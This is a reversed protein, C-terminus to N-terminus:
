AMREGYRPSALLREVAKEYWLPSADNLAAEIERPTPPLGTLDLTVRRLLTTRDAESSLTMGEKELRALIFADIPNRVGSEQGRVGPVSPRRPPLFAWHKQWKAGEAIWRKLLDIQASSLPRGSRPPMREKPDDATIRRFLESDLPKGPVLASRLGAETDLRLGAKRKAKDPGHCQYCHDSLAGRVDRNFEVAPPAALM